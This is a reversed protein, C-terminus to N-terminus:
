AQRYIELYRIYFHEPSFAARYRANLNRALEAKRATADLVAARLSDANELEFFAVENATVLEEFVPLDACVVAVGQAAAELLALPFGESRSPLAYLDYLPLYRSANPRYGLFRVRDAIGEAAAQRELAARAPGDGIVLLRHDPLQPLVHLLQDIGKRATLEAHVGILYSIQPKPSEATFGTAEAAEAETLPQLGGHATDNPLRRTNYAYTLKRAPLFRSYYRLADRSLTVVTDHRRLAALWARGAWFATWRNYQYRLDDFVYNHLTSICRAHSRAPKHLCVYADSRLGHSHVIDFRNFDLGGTGGDAARGGRWSIRRTECPFGLEDPGEDFYFVTCVHGHATMQCVLEYAVTVPGKQALKPVIYAINM